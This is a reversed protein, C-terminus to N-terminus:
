QKSRGGNLNKTVIAVMILLFAALRPLYSWAHNDPIALFAGLAHGFAFLLFAAGFCLFVRDGTRRWFKLFYFGGVSFGMALLGGMFTYLTAM